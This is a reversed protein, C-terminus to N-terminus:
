WHSRSGSQGSRESSTPQPSHCWPPVAALRQPGPSRSSAPPGQPTATHGPTSCGLHAVPSLITHCLVLNPVNPGPGHCWVPFLTACYRAPSKHGPAHCWVPSLTAHCWAPSMTGLSTASSWPCHAQLCQCPVLSTVTHGPVVYAGSLGHCQPSQAWTTGPVRLWPLLSTASNHCQAPSVAGSSHWPAQTM